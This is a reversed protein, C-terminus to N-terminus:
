RAAAPRGAAARRPGFTHIPFTLNARDRTSGSIGRSQAMGTCQQASSHGRPIHAPGGPSSSIMAFNIDLECERPHSDENSSDWNVGRPRGRTLITLDWLHSNSSDWFRSKLAGTCADRIPRPELNPLYRNTEKRPPRGAARPVSVQGGSTHIPTAFSVNVGSGSTHIRPFHWSHM